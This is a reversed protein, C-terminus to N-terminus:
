NSKAWYETTKINMRWTVQGSKNEEKNKPKVGLLLNTNKREPSSKNMGM